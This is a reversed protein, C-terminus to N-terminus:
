ANSRIAIGPSDLRCFGFRVFQVIEGPKVSRYSSEVLGPIRELSQPNFQDEISLEGPVIVELPITNNRAVWQLKPADRIPEDGEYSSVVENESISKIKVNYAEILRVKAGQRMEDLDRSPVYFESSTRVVRDGIGKNDPHFPLSIEKEPAGEVRLIKPFPVFFYRPSVPDLIKRNISELFDWTPHSEVKSLGMSLVFTRISEALIGRRRLGSITPMRPDDWGSVLGDEVFKRLKRKSMTTGKLSLRSFEVIKPIRLELADLIANYQEDRLEYEKSRLAHTVGDLSDEVPGDFDYTPWVRYKSGQRPHEETVIRFLVPDRMATNLSELDGSFRLTATNPALDGELMQRWLDLNKQVGQSRHECAKGHSRLERMTEQSCSCVYARSREILKTALAYFKPIDDSAYKVLDPKLGLWEFSELFAGYYEEKEAAPNTDDFRLIFRGSYLKAYESGFIAAKAHGIHMFGNPEPPFRTVFNGKEAEPLPALTLGKQSDKESIEKRRSAEFGSFGPFERELIQLQQLITNSNVSQLVEGVIAQIKKSNSRLEPYEAMIRGIVPGRSAIGKHDIANQLAYKRTLSRLEQDNM